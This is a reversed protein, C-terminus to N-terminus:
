VASRTRRPTGSSARAAAFSYLAVFRSRPWGADGDGGAPSWRRSGARHGNRPEATAHRPKRIAQFARAFTALASDRTPYIATGSVMIPDSSASALAGKADAASAAAILRGVSSDIAAKIRPTQAAAASASAVFTVAASALRRHYNRCPMPSRGIFSAHNGGFPRANLAVSTRLSAIPAADAGTAPATSCEVYRARQHNAAPM